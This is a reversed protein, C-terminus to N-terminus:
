TTLIDEEFEKRNQCTQTQKSAFSMRHIDVHM